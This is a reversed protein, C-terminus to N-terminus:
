HGQDVKEAFQDHRQNVRVQDCQGRDLLEAALVEHYLLLRQDVLQMNADLAKVRLATDGREM